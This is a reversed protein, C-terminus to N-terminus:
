GRVLEPSVTHLGSVNETSLMNHTDTLATLPFRVDKGNERVVEGEQHSFVLVDNLICNEEEKKDQLEGGGRKMFKNSRSINVSANYDANTEFGCEQCIFSVQKKRNEKDICGCKSCTQSTYAPNIYKVEIGAQKAKYEIMSQLQYYSWYATLFANKKVEKNLAEMHITGAYNKLCFDIVRKSIMHNYTQVFNSEKEQLSDLGKYKRKKGHGDKMNNINRQMNQRRKKIQTRFRMIDTYTGISLREFGSNLGCYAPVVWGMDIGCIIEPNLEFTDPVFTYSLYLYWYKDKKVIRSDSMKYHKSLIRDVITKISKDKEINVFGFIYGLGTLASPYFIYEENKLKIESGRAIVILSLDKFVPINKNGKLYDPLEKKFKNETEVELWSTLTKTLYKLERRQSGVFTSYTHDAGNPVIKVGGKGNNYKGGKRIGALNNAIEINRDKIFKFAMCNRITENRIDKGEYAMKQLKKYLEIQKPKEEEKLYLKIKCTKTIKDMM